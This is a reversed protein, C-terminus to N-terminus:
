STTNENPSPSSQPSSQVASQKLNQEYIAICNSCVVIGNSATRDQCGCTITAGCNKCTRM